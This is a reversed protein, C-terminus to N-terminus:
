HQKGTERSKQVIESAKIPKRQEGYEIKKSPPKIGLSEIKESVIARILDPKSIRNRRATETIWDNAYGEFRVHVPPGKTEM